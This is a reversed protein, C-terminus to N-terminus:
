SETEDTAMEDGAPPRRVIVVSREPHEPDLVLELADDHPQSPAETVIATEEREPRGEMADRLGLLGAAIVSGAAGRRFRDVPREDHEEGEGESEGDADGTNEVAEPTDDEPESADDDGDPMGGLERDDLKRVEDGVRVAGATVVKANLGRLRLELGLPSNVFRFADLGFRQSFKACGTHPPETVEIVASGIALRIGPPLNARSIDLDVYLQDGALPRRDDDQAVLSAFRANMVTIQKQPHASKDPTSSSPRERWTDGVLGENCDLQGEVIAEREDVAPRRVILEVRGADIPAARVTDLGAELDATTLHEM